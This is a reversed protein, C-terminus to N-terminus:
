RGRNQGATLDEVPILTPRENLVLGAILADVLRKPLAEAESKEKYSDSSFVVEGDLWIQVQFKDRDPGAPFIKFLDKM